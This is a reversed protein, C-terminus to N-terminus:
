SQDYKFNRLLLCKGNSCKGMPDLTLRDEKRFGSSCNFGFQEPIILPLDQAFNKNKIGIPFGLHGGRCYM